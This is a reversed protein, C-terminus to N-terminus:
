FTMGIDSVLMVMIFKIVLEGVEIEAEV